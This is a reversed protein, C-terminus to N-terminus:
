PAMDWNKQHKWKLMSIRIFDLRRKKRNMLRSFEPPVTIVIKEGSFKRGDDSVAEVENKKWHIEKVTSNLYVSGNNKTVEDMLWNLLASYGGEIRYQSDDGMNMWEDRFAFTSLRDSDASDYGEAFGIISNKMHSYKEEPFYKELFESLPIDEDLKKLEHHLLKYYEGLPESTKKGEDSQWFIGDMEYTSIGAAKLLRFTQKLDGHVFEAGTEVPESFENQLTYIRGGIRDRAELVKVKKGQRSLEYAALLGCAGAGVILIEGDVRM